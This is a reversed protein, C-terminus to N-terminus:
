AAWGMKRQAWVHLGGGHSDYHRQVWDSLASYKMDRWVVPGNFRNDRHLGNGASPYVQGAIGVTIAKVLALSGGIGDQTLQTRFLCDIELQTLGMLERCRCLLDHICAARDGRGRSPPVLWWTKQPASTKDFLFDWPAAFVRGDAERRACPALTRWLRDECPIAETQLGGTLWGYVPKTIFIPESM